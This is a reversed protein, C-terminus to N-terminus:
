GVYIVSKEGHEKLMKNLFQITESNANGNPPSINGSLPGLAYFDKGLSLTYERFASVAEPELVSTSIFVTGETDRFHKYGFKGFTIMEQKPDVM